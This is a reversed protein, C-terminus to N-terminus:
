LQVKEGRIILENHKKHGVAVIKVRTEDEVEYFVRFDGPRLEWPALPHEGLLKRRKSEKDADSVLYIRIGDIIIRQEFTRYFDLDTEASPTFRVEFPM